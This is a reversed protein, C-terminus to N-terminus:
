DLLAVKGHSEAVIGVINVHSGVPLLAAYSSRGSATSSIL